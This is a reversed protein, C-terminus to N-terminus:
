PDCGCAVKQGFKDNFRDNFHDHFNDVVINQYGISIKACYKVLKYLLDNSMDGGFKM